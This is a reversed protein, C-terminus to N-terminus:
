KKFIEPQRLKLIEYAECLNDSHYWDTITIVGSFNYGRISSLNRIIKFNKSPTFRIYNMNLAFVAIM